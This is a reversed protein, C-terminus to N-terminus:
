MIFNRKTAQKAITKIEQAGATSGCATDVIAAAIASVPTAWVSIARGVLVVSGLGVNM